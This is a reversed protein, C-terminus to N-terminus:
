LPISSSRCDLPFRTSVGSSLTCPYVNTRTYVPTHTYKRVGEHVRGSTDHAHSSMTYRALPFSYHMVYLSGGGFLVLLLHLATPHSLSNMRLKIRDTFMIGGDIVTYWQIDLHITDRICVPRLRVLVAVYM